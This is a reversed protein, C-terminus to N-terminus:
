KHESQIQDECRDSDARLGLSQLHFLGLPAQPYEAVQGVAASIQLACQANAMGAPGGMALGVVDVSVRMDALVSLDGQDVVSDNFVIQLDLLLELAATHGEGRIRVALHHGLEQFVM